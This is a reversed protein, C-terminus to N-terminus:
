GEIAKPLSTATADPASFPLWLHAGAKALAEALCARRRLAEARRASSCLYKEAQIPKFKIQITSRPHTETAGAPAFANPSPAVSSTIGALKQCGELSHLAGRITLANKM